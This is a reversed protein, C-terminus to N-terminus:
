RPTMGSGFLEEELAPRGLDGEDEEDEIEM